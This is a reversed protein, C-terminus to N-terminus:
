YMSVYPHNYDTMFVFDFKFIHVPLNAPFNCFAFYNGLSIKPRYSTLQCYMLLMIMRDSVHNLSSRVDSKVGIHTSVNKDGLFGM